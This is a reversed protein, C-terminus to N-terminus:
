SWAILADILRTPQLRKNTNWDLTLLLSLPTFDVGGRSFFHFKYFKVLITPKASIKILGFKTKFMKQYAAGIKDIRDIIIPTKNDIISM